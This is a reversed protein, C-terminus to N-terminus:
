QKGQSVRNILPGGHLSYFEKLHLILYLLHSFNKKQAGFPLLYAKLVPLM